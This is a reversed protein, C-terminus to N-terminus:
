NSKFPDSGTASTAVETTPNLEIAISKCFDSWIRDLRPIWGAKVASILLGFLFCALSGAVFQAVPQSLTNLLPEKYPGISCFLLAMSVVVSAQVLLKWRKCFYATVFTALVSVIYVVGSFSSLRDGLVAAMALLAFTIGMFVGTTRLFMAFRGSYCLGIVLGGVVLLHTSVGVAWQANLKSLELAVFATTWFVLLSSNAISRTRYVQVLEKIALVALPWTASPVVTPLVNEPGTFVLGLLFIGIAWEMFAWGRLWLTTAYGLMLVLGIWLPSGITTRLEWAFDLYTESGWYPMAALLVVFTGLGFGAFYDKGQEREAVMELCCVVGAFLIPLYFHVGIPNAWGREPIFSLSLLFLRLGCAAVLVVFISWPYVPWSWPTGTDSFLTRGQWIAPLCMLMCLGVLWGFLYVKWTASIELLGSLWAWQSSLSETPAFAFSYFFLLGLMGYFPVRLDLPFWIKLTRILLECIAVSFLFGGGLVWLALLPDSGVCGDCSAVVGVILFLISLMITRADDWVGGLKIIVIAALAMVLITGLLVSAMILPQTALAAGSDTGVNLGYLLLGTSILYFPNQTFLLGFLRSPKSRM